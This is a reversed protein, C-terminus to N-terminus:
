ACRRTVTGDEGILYDCYEPDNGLRRIMNVDTGGYRLASVCCVKIAECAAEVQDPTEPQRVFYTDQNDDDLPALLDAAKAEPLGCALCDGTGYFPGDVNKLVRDPHLALM